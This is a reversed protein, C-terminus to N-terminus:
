PNIDSISLAYLSQQIFPRVAIASTDIFRGNQIPSRFCLHHWQISAHEDLDIGSSELTEQLVSRISTYRNKSENVEEETGSDDIKLNLSELNKSTWTGKLTEAGHGGMEVVYPHILYRDRFYTMDFLGLWSLVWLAFM